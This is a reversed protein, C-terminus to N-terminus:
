VRRRVAERAERERMKDIIARRKDHAQRGRALGLQVKARHRTLYFRLPVITLGGTTVQSTWKEIQSKHLLLKRPRTPDHNNPGGASYQAIHANLLWLEGNNPKAFAETINARGERASKIETGVLVVGAEITDLIDYQYRARRNVALTRGDPM